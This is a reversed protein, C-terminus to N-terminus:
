VAERKMFEAFEKPDIKLKALQESATLRKGSRPDQWDLSADNYPSDEGGTGASADEIFFKSDKNSYRLGGKKAERGVLMDIVNQCYQAYNPETKKQWPTGAFLQKAEAVIQPWQDKVAQICDNETFRAANMVNLAFNAKNDRDLREAETLETGDAKKNPDPPPEKFQEEIKAQWSAVSEVKERIPKLTEEFRASIGDILADVESKSEGDKKEETKKSWMGM